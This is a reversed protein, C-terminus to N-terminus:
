AVRPTHPSVTGEDYAVRRDDDVAAGSEPWGLWQSPVGADSTVM